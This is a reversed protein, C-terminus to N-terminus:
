SFSILSYLNRVRAQTHPTPHPLFSLLHCHCPSSGALHSPLPTWGLSIVVFIVDCVPSCVHPTYVHACTHTHTCARTCARARVSHADKCYLLSTRYPTLTTLSLFAKKCLQFLQSHHPSMLTPWVQFGSSGCSSTALMWFFIAQTHVVATPGPHLHKQSRGLVQNQPHHLIKDDATSSLAKRLAKPFLYLHKHGVHGHTHRQYVHEGAPGWNGCRCFPATSPPSPLAEKLYLLKHNEQKCGLTLLTYHYQWEYM